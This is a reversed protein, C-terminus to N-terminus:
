GCDAHGRAAKMTVVRTAKVELEAAFEDDSDAEQEVAEVMAPLISPDANIVVDGGAALFDVAREGPSLHSVAKAAGVDDSIVVGDFDMDDRIMGEIVTESFMAPHEADIQSYIASGVMVMDSGNEVASHFGALDADDRTTSDDVVRTELDTNGQVRGLGPFHKVSTAVGSRDMGAAFADVKASVVDADSGYGRDLAGIPENADGVETPVVDAVPALNIDVGGGRLQSGWVEASRELETDSLQAQETAAPMADFGEGQLRQVLGGEQDAAVMLEIGDPQDISGKIQDSLDKIGSQGIETNELLLVTGVEAEDFTTAVSDNWAPVGVGPMFLQGIQESRDLDAVLAACGAAAGSPSPSPTVSSPAPSPTAAASSPPSTPASVSPTPGADQSAGCATLVLGATAAGVALLPRHHRTAM